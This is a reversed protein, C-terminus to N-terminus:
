VGKRLINTPKFLRKTGMVLLNNQKLERVKKKRTQGKDKLSTTNLM